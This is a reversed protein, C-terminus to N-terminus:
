RRPSSNAPRTTACGRGRGPRQASRPARPPRPTRSGGGGTVGATGNGGNGGGGGNAQITASTTSPSRLIINAFIALVGGGAAGGGGGGGSNVGDGGGSSGGRGGSGGTVLTAGLIFNTIYRNAFLQTNGIATSTGTGGGANTGTGGAGGSGGGGGNSGATGATGTTGVGTTGTAGAGGATNGGLSGNASAAVGTGGTAGSANGGSGGNNQIAGAPAATLDLVGKVFIKFSNADISGTGNITLNNYYMDRTLVTAGSSVTVNGDGGDGLSQYSITQTSVGTPAIALSNWVTVGDGIKFIFNTIDCGIEGRSLIPNVSSWNAATDERLQIKIAM